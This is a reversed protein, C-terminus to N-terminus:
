SAVAVPRNALKTVVVVLPSGAVRAEAKAMAEPTDDQFRVLVAVPPPALGAAVRAAKVKGALADLAATRGKAARPL